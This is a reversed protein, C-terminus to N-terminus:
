KVPQLADLLNDEDDDDYYYLLLKREKVHYLVRTFVRRSELRNRSESSWSRDERKELLFTGVQDAIHLRTMSLLEVISPLSKAGFEALNCSSQSYSNCKIMVEPWKVDGQLM